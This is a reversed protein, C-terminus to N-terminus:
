IERNFVPPMPPKRNKNKESNELQRRTINKIIKIVTLGMILTSIIIFIAFIIEALGFSDFSGAWVIDVFSLVFSIVWFTWWINHLAPSSLNASFEDSDTYKYDSKHWIENIIRLPIILNAFPIFWWFVAGAPSSRLNERNFAQLNKYSRYMWILFFINLSIIIVIWFILFIILVSVIILENGILSEVDEFNEIVPIQFDWMQAVYLFISLFDLIIMTYILGIVIQSLNKTSSFETNIM